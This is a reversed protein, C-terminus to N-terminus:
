LVQLPLGVEEAGWLYEIYDNRVHDLAIILKSNEDNHLMKAGTQFIQQVHFLCRLQVSIVHLDDHVVTELSHLKQVWRVDDVTVDLWRVDEDVLVAM